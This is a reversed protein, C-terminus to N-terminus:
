HIRKLTSAKIDNDEQEELELNNKTKIFVPYERLIQVLSLRCDAAAQCAELREGIEATEDESMKKAINYSNNLCTRLKLLESELEQSAIDYWVQKDEEHITKTYRQYTRLPIDLLNRIEIESKNSERLARIDAIIREISHTPRKPAVQRKSSSNVKNQARSNRKM